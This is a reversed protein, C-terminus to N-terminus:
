SEENRHANIIADADLTDVADVLDAEAVLHAAYDTVHRAVARALRPHQDEPVYGWGEAPGGLVAMVTEGPVDGPKVYVAVVYVVAGPSGDDTNWPGPTFGDGSM